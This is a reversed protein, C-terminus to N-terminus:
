IRLENFEEAWGRRGHEEEGDTTFTVIIHLVDVALGPVQYLVKRFAETRMLNALKRNAHSRRWKACSAAKCHCTKMSKWITGSKLDEHDETRFYFEVKDVTYGALTHLNHKQAVTFLKLVFYVSPESVAEYSDLGYMSQLMGM